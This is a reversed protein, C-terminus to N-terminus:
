HNFNSVFPLSVVVLADPQPKSPFHEGIKGNWLEKDWGLAMAAFRQYIDMEEWSMGDIGVAGRNWSTENYGLVSYIDHSGTPLDDWYVTISTSSEGNVPLSPGKTPSSSVPKLTPSGTTPKLTPSMTIPKVTPQKSQTALAPELTECWIDETYGLTTAADLQEPTFQGWLAEESWVEEVLGLNWRETQLM